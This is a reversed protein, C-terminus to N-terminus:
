YYWKRRVSVQPEHDAHALIQQVEDAISQQIVGIIRISTWPFWDHVLFEAMKKSMVAPDVNQGRWWKANVAKWDVFTALKRIDASFQTYFAGANGDSFAWPRESAAQIALDTTSVLHVVRKQGELYKLDPNQMHIMYLMPSRPCFYFPVYDGVQTEPHCHVPLENLRRKKINNLGIVVREGHTDVLRRDSWLYGDKIISPLNDVHTIHFIFTSQKKAV